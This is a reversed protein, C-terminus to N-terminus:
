CMRAGGKNKLSTVGWWWGLGIDQARWSKMYWSSRIHKLEIRGLDLSKIGWIQRDLEERSGIVWIMDHEIRVRSIFINWISLNIARAGRSRVAVILDYVWIKRNGLVRAKLKGLQLSRIFGYTRNIDRRQDVETILDHDRSNRTRVFRYKVEKLWSDTFCQDRVMHGGQHITKIIKPDRLM